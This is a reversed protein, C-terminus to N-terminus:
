LTASETDSRSDHIFRESRTQQVHKFPKVGAADHQMTSCLDGHISWAVGHKDGVERALAMSQDLYARARASGYCAAATFLGALGLAKVQVAAPSNSDIRLFTELWDLGDHEHGRLHWFSGLTAALRLGAAADKTLAWSLAAAVNDSEIELRDYWAEQEPGYVHADAQGALSAYFAFHRRTVAVPEGDSSATLKESSYQRVLEHLEYRKAGSVRILSKDALNALVPLSAGAVKGAADLDFGGRFVSLQALATRETDSLLNWSQDCVARLSRHRDPVNRVPTSLFDLGREIHLVIQDCHMVRLWTAALEFALPLGDVRQCITTVSEADDALSSEAHLQRARQVFLRVAPYRQLGDTLVGDPYPLGEIPLVWEEQLNLRERSTVLITVGPADTLIDTLLGSGDLLHEFNDLVLLLRKDRLYSALQVSPEKARHLSVGLVAAIASSLLYPSGVGALAVFRVGDAFVASLLRAAEVALWTKGVGGTGTITVLRAEGILRRAETLEVDRGIFSTPPVPLAPHVAPFAVEAQASPEPRRAARLTAQQAADLGLGEILRELTDRYPVRRVGRELDSIGRPSMGARGALEEQTLGALRRYRRLVLGFNSHDVAM